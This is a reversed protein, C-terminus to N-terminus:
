AKRKTIIYDNFVEMKVITELTNVGKDLDNELEQKTEKLEKIKTEILQLQEDIESETLQKLQEDNMSPM